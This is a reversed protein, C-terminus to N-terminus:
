RANAVCQETEEVGCSKYPLSQCQLTELTTVYATYFSPTDMDSIFAGLLRTEQIRPYEWLVHPAIFKQKTGWVETFLAAANRREWSKLLHNYTKCSTGHATHLLLLLLLSPM